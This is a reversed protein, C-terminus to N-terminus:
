PTIIQIGTEDIRSPVTRVALWKMGLGFGVILSGWPHNCKGAHSAGRGLSLM